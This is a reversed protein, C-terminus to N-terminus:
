RLSSAIFERITGHLNPGGVTLTNVHGAHPVVVLQARHNTAEALKASMHVPVVQDEQAHIILVPARVQGIKLDNTFRKPLLPWIPFYPYLHRAMAWSNTFANETILASVERSHALDIAVAAGLSCGYAILKAPPYGLTTTLHDHATQASLYFGDESPEGESAGYGPYDFTFFSQGMEDFLKYHDRFMTINHRNGHTFLVVSDSGKNVFAGDLTLGHAAGFQHREHTLDKLGGHDEKTPKFTLKKEIYSLM